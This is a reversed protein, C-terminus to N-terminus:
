SSLTVRDMSPCAVTIVPIVDFMSKATVPLCTVDTLDSTDLGDEEEEVEEVFSSSLDIVTAANGCRSM